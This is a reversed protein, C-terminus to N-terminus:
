AWWGVSIAPSRAAARTSERRMPREQPPEVPVFRHATVRITAETLDVKDFQSTLRLVAALGEAKVAALVGAVTADVDPVYGELSSAGNMMPVGALCINDKLVIRRGELPGSAAGEALLACASATM